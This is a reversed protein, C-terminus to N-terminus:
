VIQKEKMIFIGASLLKIILANLAILPMRGSGSGLQCEDEKDRETDHFGCDKLFDMQGKRLVPGQLKGPLGPYADRNIRKARIDQVYPANKALWYNVERSCQTLLGDEAMLKHCHAKDIGMGYHFLEAIIEGLETEVKHIQQENSVDFENNLCRGYLLVLGQAARAMENLRIKRSDENVPQSVEINGTHDFYNAPPMEPLFCDGQDRMGISGVNTFDTAAGNWRELAGECTQGIFPSIVIHKREEASDHYANISPTGMIGKSWLRGFDRAYLHLGNICARRDKTDYLYQEYLAKAPSTFDIATRCEPGTLGFLSQQEADSLSTGQIYTLPNNLRVLKGPIVVESELELVKKQEHFFKLKSFNCHVDQVSENAFQIKLYHNCGDDSRKRKVTRGFRESFNQAAPPEAAEPEPRIQCPDSCARFQKIQETESVPPLEKWLREIFLNWANVEDYFTSLPYFQQGFLYRQAKKKDPDFLWEQQIKYSWNEPTESLMTQILCYKFTPFRDNYYFYFPYNRNQYQDNNVPDFPERDDIIMEPELHCLEPRIRKDGAKMSDLIWQCPYDNIMDINILWDMFLSYKEYSRLGDLERLKDFLACFVKNQDFEGDSETLGLQENSYHETPRGAFHLAMICSFWTKYKNTWESMLSEKPFINQRCQNKIKSLVAPLNEEYQVPDLVAEINNHVRPNAFPIIGMTDLQREAEAIEVPVDAPLTCVCSASVTASIAQM